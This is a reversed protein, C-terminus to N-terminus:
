QGTQTGAGLSAHLVNMCHRVRAVIGGSCPSFFLVGLFLAIPM